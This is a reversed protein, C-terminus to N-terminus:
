IQEEDEGEIQKNCENVMSQEKKTNNLTTSWPHPYNPHIQIM